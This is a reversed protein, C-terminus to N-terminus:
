EGSWWEVQGQPIVYVEYDPPKGAAAQEIYDFVNVAAVDKGLEIWPNLYGEVDEYHLPRSQTIM